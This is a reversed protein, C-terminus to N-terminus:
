ILGSDADDDSEHSHADSAHGSDDYSMADGLESEPIERMETADTEVDVTHSSSSKRKKPM